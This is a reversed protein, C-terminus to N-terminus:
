IGKAAGLEEISAVLRDITERTTNHSVVARFFEGHEADPSYDTAM